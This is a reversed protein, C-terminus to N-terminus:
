TTRLRDVEGGGAQAAALDAYTPLATLLGTMQLVRLLQRHPRALRLWGGATTCRKNASILHRLGTSDCFALASLDLLRRV